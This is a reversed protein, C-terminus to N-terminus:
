DLLRIVRPPIKMKHVKRGLGRENNGKEM